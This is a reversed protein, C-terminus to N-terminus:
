HLKNLPALWLRDNSLLQKTKDSLLPNHLEFLRRHPLNAKKIVGSTMEHQNFLADFSGDEIALKLGYELRQALIVNTKNVFFYIPAPYKLLIHPEVVFDSGAKIEQWPEHLGRPYFDFRKMKLMSLLNRAAGQVVNFGNAKLIDSDPWDIGQGTTINKFQSLSNISAFQFADNSRIIGIRYGMLGKVIPVYVANFRVERAKSTMSWVVDILTGSELMNFTRGQHMEIIQEQLEFSGYKASSKDLALKLVDIYYNQPANKLLLSTGYKVKLAPKLPQAVSTVNLFISFCFFLIYKLSKM